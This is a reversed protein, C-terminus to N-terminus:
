RVCLKSKQNGCVAIYIGAPIKVEARGDVIISSGCLSGEVNYISLVEGDNFGSALVMGSETYIFSDPVVAAEVASSYEGFGYNGLIAYTYYSDLDCDLYFELWKDSAYEEPVPVEITKWKANYEPVDYIKVPADQNAYGAAYVAVKGSYDGTWLTLTLASRTYASPNVKPLSIRTKGGDENDSYGIMAYPIDASWMQSSVEEPAVMDWASNQYEPAPTKVVIPGYHTFGDDFHEDIYDYPKGVVKFVYSLADSVGGNNAAVIGLYRVRMRDSSNVSYTYELVNGLDKIPLWEYVEYYDNWIQEYLWYHMGDPSYYGELNEQGGLPEEWSLNVSLNDESIVAKLNEVYNPTISGTFVELSASQGSQGNLSCLAEVRNDGQATAVTLTVVEGPTAKSESKNEGCKLVAVLDADDAIKNGAITSEPMRFSVTATLDADSKGILKMDTPSQPVDAVEDTAEININRVLLSYGSAPTVCRIAIYCPGAEKPLFINSFSEWGDTIFHSVQTEPIILTNMAEVTPASGCWVEFREDKSTMGGSCAELSVRFAHSIDSCDVPALILWDDADVLNWGSYFVPEHWRDESFGWEGYAPSGDANVTITLDADAQTPVVHYPLPLPAGYLLKESDTRSSVNGNCKAAVSVVYASYSKSPDLSITYENKDTSGVYEGNVYVDYQLKDLDLYAGYEAQTVADWSVHTGEVEVSRPALPIGNGFYYSSVSSLGEKGDLSVAFRIVHVGQTMNELKVLVEEGPQGSGSSYPNNDVYLTWELTSTLPDGGLTESPLKYSVDGSLSGPAVSFSMQEPRAPSTEDYKVDDSLLFTFQYDSPFNCIFEAEKKEPRIFYLQSCFDYYYACYVFCGDLPSYVLASPDTKINEFAPDFIVTETGDRDISVFEGYYNIGYFTDDEPNYCLSSTRETLDSLSKIVTVDAIDDAPSSCFNFGNGDDDGYTFGYIRDEGPVYASSLYYTDLHILGDDGIPIENIPRGTALDFELMNYYFVLGGSSFSGLGVLKDDKIWGNLLYIGMSALENTWLMRYSGDTDLQYFGPEADENATLWGRLHAGSLSTKSLTSKKFPSHLSTISKLDPKDEQKQMMIRGSEDQHSALESISKFRQPLTQAMMGACVLSLAMLLLPKKM